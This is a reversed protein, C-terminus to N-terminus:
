RVFILPMTRNERMGPGLTCHCWTHLSADVQTRSVSDTSICILPSHVSSVVVYDDTIMVKTRIPAYFKRSSVIFPGRNRITWKRAEDDGCRAMWDVFMAWHQGFNYEIYEVRENDVRGVPLVMRTGSVFFEMNKRPESFNPNGLVIQLIFRKWEGPRITSGPPYKRTLFDFIQTVTVLVRGSSVRPRKRGRPVPTALHIVLLERGTNAPAFDRTSLRPFLIAPSRHVWM